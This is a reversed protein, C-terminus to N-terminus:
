PSCSDGSNRPTYREYRRAKSNWTLVYVGEGKAKQEAAWTHASCGELVFYRQNHTLGYENAIKLASAAINKDTKFGNALHPDTVCLKEYPEGHWEEFLLFMRRIIEQRMRETVRVTPKKGGRGDAPRRECPKLARLSPLTEALARGKATLHYRRASGKRYKRRQALVSSIIPRRTWVLERRALGMAAAIDGPDLALSQAAGLAALLLRRQVESLRRREKALDPYFETNAPEDNAIISYAM